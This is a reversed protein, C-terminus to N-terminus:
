SATVSGSRPITGVESVMVSTFIRKLSLRWEFPGSIFQCESRNEDNKWGSPRSREKLRPDGECTAALAPRMAGPLVGEEESSPADGFSLLKAKHCLM